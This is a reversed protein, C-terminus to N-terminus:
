WVNYCLPSDGAHSYHLNNWENMAIASWLIYGNVGYCENCKGFNEIEYWFQVLKM